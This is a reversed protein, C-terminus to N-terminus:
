RQAGSRQQNIGGADPKIVPQASRRGQSREPLRRDFPVALRVTGSGLFAHDTRHVFVVDVLNIPTADDDERVPEYVHQLFM